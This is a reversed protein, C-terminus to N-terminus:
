GAEKGIEDAAKGDSHDEGISTDMLNEVHSRIVGPANEALWKGMYADIHEKACLSVQTKAEDRARHKVLQWWGFAALLAIIAIVVAGWTLAVSLSSLSASVVDYGPSQPLSAQQQVQPATASCHNAAASILRECLGADIKAPHAV